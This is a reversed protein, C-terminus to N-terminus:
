RQAPNYKTKNKDRRINTAALLAINEKALLTRIKNSDWASDTIM